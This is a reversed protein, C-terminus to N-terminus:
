TWNQKLNLSVCTCMTQFSLTHRFVFFCINMQSLDLTKQKSAYLFDQRSVPLQILSMIWLNYTQIEPVDYYQNTDLLHNRATPDSM